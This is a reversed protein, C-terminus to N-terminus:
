RPQSRGRISRRWENIWGGLQVVILVCLLDLGFQAAALHKSLDRVGEGLLAVVFQSPIFVALLLSASSMEPSVLPSVRIGCCEGGENSRLPIRNRDGQKAARSGLIRRLFPGISVLGGLVIVVWYIPTVFRERMESLRVLTNGSHFSRGDSPIIYMTGPYVHFYRVTFHAPALWRWMEGMLGPHALYPALVMGLRIPHRQACNTPGASFELTDERDVRNGWPDVGLCEMDVGLQRLEDDPLRLYSGFYTSNYYNAANGGAHFAYYTTVGFAMLLLGSLVWDVKRRYLLAATVFVVVGLAPLYFYQPKAGGAFLLGTVILVIRVWRTREFLGVLAVPLFVVFTHEGYFSNLLAINHACAIATVFLTFLPLQLGAPLGAHRLCGRALRFCCFLVIMKSILAMFFLDFHDSFLRQLGTHLWLYIWSLNRDSFTNETASTFSWVFAARGFPQYPTVDLPKTNLLSKMALFFDGQNMMAINKSM